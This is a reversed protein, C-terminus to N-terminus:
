TQLGGLGLSYNKVNSWGTGTLNSNGNVNYFAYLDLLPVLGYLVDSAYALIMNRERYDMSPEPKDFFSFDIGSNFIKEYTQEDEVTNSRSFWVGILKNEDHV